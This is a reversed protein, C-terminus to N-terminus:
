LSIATIIEVLVRIRDHNPKGVQAGCQKGEKCTTKGEKEVHQKREMSEVRELILYEKWFKTKGLSSREELLIGAGLIDKRRLIPRCGVSLM